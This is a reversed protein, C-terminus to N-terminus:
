SRTTPNASVDWLEVIGDAERGDWTICRLKGDRKLCAALRAYRPPSWGALAVIPDDALAPMWGAGASQRRLEEVTESGNGGCEWLARTPHEGNSHEVIFVARDVLFPFSEPYLRPRSAAGSFKNAILRPEAQDDQSEIRLQIGSDPPPKVSAFTGRATVRDEGDGRVISVANFSTGPPLNADRSM